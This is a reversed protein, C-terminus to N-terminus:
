KLGEYKRKINSDAREIAAEVEMKGSTTASALLRIEDIIAPMIEVTPYNTTFDLATSTIQAFRDNQYYQDNALIAPRTPTWGGAKCTNRMAEYSTAHKMFAVSAKLIDKDESKAPGVLWGGSYTRSTELSDPRPLLAAKWDEYEEEPLNPKLQRINFNSNAIFSHIQGAFVQPMIQPESWVSATQPIYEKEVMEVFYNLIESWIERNVGEFVVPNGAEDVFSGGMEVFIGSIHSNFNKGLSAGLVYDGKEEKIKEGLKMLESWTKPPTKIVSSNYFYIRADTNHWLANMKGDNMLFEISWPYFESLEENSIYPTIDALVDEKQLQGYWGSNIWAVDITGEKMQQVIDVLYNSATSVVEELEIQPYKERFSDLVGQFAVQREIRRDISSAWRPVLYRVKVEELDMVEEASVTISFFMVLVLLAIVLKKM